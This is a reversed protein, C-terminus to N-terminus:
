VESSSDNKKRKRYEGRSCYDFPQPNMKEWKSCQYTFMGLNSEAGHYYIRAHECDKCYVIEGYSAM